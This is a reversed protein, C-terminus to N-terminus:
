WRSGYKELVEQIAKKIEKRETKQIRVHRIIALYLAGKLKEPDIGKEVPGQYTWIQKKKESDWKVDYAYKRGKITKIIQAMSLM